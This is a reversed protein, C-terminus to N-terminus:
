VPFGTAECWALAVFLSPTDSRDQLKCFPGPATFQKALAPGLKMLLDSIVEYSATMKEVSFGAQRMLRALKRGVNPDKLGEKQQAVYSAFAQAPGDSEADLLMGGLDGARLAIVGGPKLVRRFEAIAALPDSLHELLAHSFVADFRHDEFPLQYVSDKRFEVNLEERQVTARADEFQSDEADVGVVHGPNVNRALGLTITGPGCGADLVRWGPKLYPLFFSAHTEAIRQAMFQVMPASYGPTYEDTRM